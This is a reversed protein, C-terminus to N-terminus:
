DMPKPPIEMTARAVPTVGEGGGAGALTVDAGFRFSSPNDFAAATAGGDASFSFSHLNAFGICAPDMADTIEISAPYNNVATVTSIPCDNFTRLELTAGNVLPTAHAAGAVLATLFAPWLLGALLKRKM